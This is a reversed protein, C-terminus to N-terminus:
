GPRGGRHPQPGPRPSVLRPGLARRHGGGAPESAAAADVACGAGLRHLVSQLRVSQQFFFLYLRCADGSRNFARRRHAFLAHSADTDGGQWAVNESSHSVPEGGSTSPRDDYDTVNLNGQILSIQPKSQTAKAALALAVARGYGRQGVGRYRESRNRRRARNSTSPGRSRPIPSTPVPRTAPPTFAPSRASMTWKAPM